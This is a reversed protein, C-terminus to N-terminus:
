PRVPVLTVAPSGDANALMVGDKGQVLTLPGKLAAALRREQTMAPGPCAM